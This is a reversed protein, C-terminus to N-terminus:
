FKGLRLLKSLKGTSRPKSQKLVEPYMSVAPMATARNSAEVSPPRLASRKVEAALDSLASAWAPKQSLPHTPWLHKALGTVDVSLQTWPQSQPTRRQHEPFSALQEKLSSLFSTAALGVEQTRVYSQVRDIAKVLSAICADSTNSTTGGGTTSTALVDSQAVMLYSLRLLRQMVQARLRQEQTDGSTRSNSGVGALLLDMLQILGQAEMTMSQNLTNRLSEMALTTPLQAFDSGARSASLLVRSSHHLARDIQMQAAFWRVLMLHATFSMHPPIDANKMSNLLLKCPQDAETIETDCNRAVTTGCSSVHRLFQMQHLMASPDTQYSAAFLQSLSPGTVHQLGALMAQVMLGSVKQSAGLQVLLHQAEVELAQRDPLTLNTTQGDVYEASEFTRAIRVADQVMEQLRQIRAQFCQHGAELTEKGGAAAQLQQLCKVHSMFIVASGVYRGVSHRVWQAFAADTMGYLETQQESLPVQLNACGHDSTLRQAARGSRVPRRQEMRDHAKFSERVESRVAQLATLSDVFVALPSLAAHLCQSVGQSSSTQSADLPPNAEVSASAISLGYRSAVDCAASVLICHGLAATERDSKSELGAMAKRLGEVDRVLREQELSHDALAGILTDGLGSVRTGELSASAASTHTHSHRLSPTPRKARAARRHHIRSVTDGLSCGARFVQQRTWREATPLSKCLMGALEQFRQPLTETTTGFPASAPLEVRHSLSAAMMHTVLPLSLRSVTSNATDAAYRNHWQLVPMRRLWSEAQRIDRDSDSDPASDAVQRPAAQEPLLACQARQVSDLVTDLLESVPVAALGLPTWIRIPATAPAMSGSLYSPPAARQSRGQPSSQGSSTHHPLHQLIRAMEHQLVQQVRDPKLTGPEAGCRTAAAARGIGQLALTHACLAAASALDAAPYAQFWWQQHFNNSKSQSSNKQKPKLLKLTAAKSELVAQLSSHGSACSLQQCIARVVPDYVWPHSSHAPQQNFQSARVCFSFLAIGALQRGGSTAEAHWHHLQQPSPASYLLAAHTKSTFSRRNLWRSMVMSEIIAHSAGCRAAALAVDGVLKAHLAGGARQLVCDIELIDELFMSVQLLSQILPITADNAQAVQTAEHVLPAVRDFAVYAVQGRNAISSVQTCLYRQYSYRGRSALLVARKAQM